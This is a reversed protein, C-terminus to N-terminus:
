MAGQELLESEDILGGRMSSELGDAEAMLADLEDFRLAEDLADLALVAQAEAAGASHEAVLENNGLGTSGGPKLAWWASLVAGGLLVAAAMRMVPVRMVPNRWMGGRVTVAPVAREALRLGPLAAAAGAGTGAGAVAAAAGTLHPRSAEFTSVELDAPGDARLAEREDALWGAAGVASGANLMRGSALAVGGSLAAPAMAREAAGLADLLSSIGALETPLGGEGEPRRDVNFNASPTNM